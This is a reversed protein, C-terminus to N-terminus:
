EVLKVTGTNLGVLIPATRTLGHPAAMTTVAEDSNLSIRRKIWSAGGNTSLLLTQEHLVLIHAKRSFDESLLIKNVSGAISKQGLSNWTKGADISHFLGHSETGAFVHGDHSFDPSIALSMVPADDISFGTLRWARAGNTSRYIGSETAAFVTEDQTFNPSVVLDYTNLDLLGFNWASWSGGRNTSIMVGDELTAALIIGDRIYNPSLVLSVVLPPPDPLKAFLWNKGGDHSRLIGGQVGAFVEHDAGYNPSLAAVPTSLKEPLNLSQYADEWSTGGDQSRFLGGECAAFCTHDSLFDPSVALCYVSHILADTDEPVGIRGNTRKIFPQSAAM